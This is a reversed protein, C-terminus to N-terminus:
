NEERRDGTAVVPSGTDILRGLAEGEVEAVEEDSAKGSVKAEQAEELRRRVAAPDHFERQAEEDIIEALKIFGKIPMLPLRLLLTLPNM